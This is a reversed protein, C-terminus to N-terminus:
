RRERGDRSRDADRQDYPSHGQQGSRPDYRDGSRPDHQGPYQGPYQGQYQGPHQGPYQGPHPAPQPGDHRGDHRDDHRRDPPRHRNHDPPPPQWTVPPQMYPQGPRPMPVYSNGGWNNGGWPNGDPYIQPAVFFTGYNQQEPPSPPVVSTVIDGTQPDRYQTALGRDTFTDGQLQSTGYVADGGQAGTYPAAANPGSPYPMPSYPVPPYPAYGPQSNPMPPPMTGPAYGSNYGSDYGSAASGAAPGAASPVNPAQAVPMTSSDAPTAPTAPTAPAPLGGISSYPVMGGSPWPTPGGAAGTQASAATQGGATPQGTLQAPPHASPQASTSSAGSVGQQGQGVQQTPGGQPAPLVPQAPGLKAGTAPARYEAANEAAYPAASSVFTLVACFFIVSAYGRM